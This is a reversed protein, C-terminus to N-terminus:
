RAREGIEPPRNVIGVVDDLVAHWVKNPKCIRDLRWKSDARTTSRRYHNVVIGDDTLMCIARRLGCNSDVTYRVMM